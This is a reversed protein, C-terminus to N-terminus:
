TYNMLEIKLEGILWKSGDLLTADQMILMSHLLTGSYYVILIHRASDRGDKMDVLRYLQM